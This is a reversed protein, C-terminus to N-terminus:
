SRVPQYVVRYTWSGAASPTVVVKYNRPMVGRKVFFNAGLDGDTANAHLIGAFAGNAATVVIGFDALDVATGGPSVAQLKMSLTQGGGPNATVDLWFYGADGERATMTPSTTLTTRAASALAEDGNLGVQSPM